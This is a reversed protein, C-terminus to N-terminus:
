GTILKNLADVDREVGRQVVHLPHARHGVEPLGGSRGANVRLVFLSSPQVARSSASGRRSIVPLQMM